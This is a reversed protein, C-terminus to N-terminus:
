GECIARKWNIVCLLTNLEHENCKVCIANRGPVAVFHYQLTSYVLMIHKSLKDQCVFEDQFV